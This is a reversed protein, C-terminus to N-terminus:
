APEACRDRLWRWAARVAGDDLSGGRRSWDIAAPVDPAIAGLWARGTSDVDVAAAVVAAGFRGVPISVTASAAGATPAGFTRADRADGRLALVLSEGASATLASTLIAVHESAARPAQRAALAGGSRVVVTGGDLQVSEVTGSPGDYAVAFRGRTLATGAAELMPYVSGGWNLRADVIWGCRSAAVNRAIARRAASVYRRDGADAAVVGPLELYGVSAPLQAAVPARFLTYTAAPLNARLRGPRVRQVGLEGASRSVLDVVDGAHLGAAAARGSPWLYAVDFWAPGQSSPVLLVGFGSQRNELLAASEAATMYQSHGDRLAALPHQMADRVSGAGPSRLESWAVERQLGWDARPSFYARRQIEGLAAGVALSPTWPMLWM